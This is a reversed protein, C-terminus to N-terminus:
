ASSFRLSCPARTRARSWSVGLMDEQAVAIGAPFLSALWQADPHQLARATQLAEDAGGASLKPSGLKDLVDWWKIQDARDVALAGQVKM